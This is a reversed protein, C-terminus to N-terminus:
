SKGEKREKIIRQLETVIYKAGVRSSSGLNYVYERVFSDIKDHYAQAEKLMEEVVAAINGMDEPKVVRGIEERMWINIPEIGIKEYEPNMIKMPTDIFLVPKCTTYAYEYAIGSWDTIMMDAEFVTRNSSFDTQIEINENEAFRAKLQEMKEPQHRVHQPHPRVTIKFGENKLGELLEELCCDVINDKQWSPAILISKIASKKKETRGYDERMKDLLSYGWEVLRKKPLNYVLETQEIEEKQNKGTCFITDFHDMSGTRMTLNLSDMGHPIYIYQIDKRLYSRKIHYNDLDPMTMVVIDAELKMMLTILKKEGIYYPKIKEEKKSLEFIGDEPDSTIYHIVVNSHRLLYEIIGQYYKYFGSGESYFVLHKNVISFFRKYDAKERKSYEDGFLKRKREGIHALEDLEKKSKELQEYDVYNKPNIAWNLLYLQAIAMVNSAVWYLAVGISVFWGLYLSLGVSLLMTGYKNWKSQESQLVNSANQAVCLLWASIGAIVPSLILWGGQENPVLSLDIGFFGMDIDPDAIGAKIVGIVGMLLILQIALPLISAMPSYKERKFIKAQEEAITDKDGFHRAKMFNIEPQIKVMKISNKQVWVSVPLLVVKSIFTFLIIALGYNRCIGYCWNMIYELPRFIVNLKQGPTGEEKGEDASPNRLYEEGTPVLTTVDGADGTQVYEQIKDEKLYEYYLFRRDRQEGEKADFIENGSNGALLRAYADQLDEFSIPANSVQMNDRDENLGKVFLIPNQRELAANEVPVEAYGHDAMIIIVSNDYVNENKLRELYTRTITMSAKLNDTYTANEVFDVNEDYRFPTHGGEVHIFKFQKEDTHTVPTDLMTHYFYNNVFSYANYGEAVDQLASFFNTDFICFRKLDFPAYKVGVLKLEAKLFEWYSSIKGKESIINEFRYISDDESPLEPEYMGLKYGEQELTDFLLANKYVNAHYEEFPQENEFWQGSFIYPISMMTFPYAGVTNPYYTFDEFIEEYEPNEKLLETMNRADVADLLFIIFNKDDSMEYLKDDTIQMQKKRELGNNGICVTVLSVTLMLVICIPVFKVVYYFREMRLIRLLLLVVAIVAIWVIASKIREGSYLSWDIATGDLPPLNKVLFNGQIYSALFAIFGAVLGVQYLREHIRYLICFALCGLVTTILFVLLMVPAIHYFDFWFENKNTFYLELPAYLFFMFCIAASLIVAPLVPRLGKEKRLIRM